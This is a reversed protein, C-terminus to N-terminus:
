KGEYVDKLKQLDIKKMKLFEETVRAVKDKDDDKLMEQMGTPTVQWSVGYKDKLWGCQEAESVASLKEWYYDIEEQTECHIIFSVAENFNFKHDLSSDMVVFKHGALKFDAYAVLGEKELSQNADYHSLLNIESDKFISTYFRMAEEAKGTQENVFLLSPVIKQEIKENAIILQWSIGYKDEIWGYWESFPYRELNMLVKGGISLKQWMETIEEKSSSHVFFSISPNVKFLPGANLFIFEQNYIDLSIVDADGSPTNHLTTIDKVVVDKFVGSYFEAAENGGKDFWINISIKKM